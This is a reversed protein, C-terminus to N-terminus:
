QVLVTNSYVPQHFRDLSFIRSIEAGTFTRELAAGKRDRNQKSHVINASGRADALPSEDVKTARLAM